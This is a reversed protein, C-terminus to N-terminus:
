EMILMLRATLANSTGEEGFRDLTIHRYDLSLLIDGREVHGMRHTVVVWRMERACKPPSGSHARALIPLM